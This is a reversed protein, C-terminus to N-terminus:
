DTGIRQGCADLWAAEMAPLLQAWTWRERVRSMAARGLRARRQPDALLDGIARALADVDDPPLLLGNVDHEILESLGGCDSAVVAMGSAMGELASLGFTEFRSPVM